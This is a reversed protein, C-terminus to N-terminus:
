SKRRIDRVFIRYIGGVGHTEDTGCEVEVVDIEFPESGINKPRRMDGNAFTAGMATLRRKLRSESAATYHGRWKIARNHIETIVSGDGTIISFYVDILMIDTSTWDISVQVVKADFTGAPRSGPM